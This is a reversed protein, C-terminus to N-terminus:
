IRLTLHKAGVTWANWDKLSITTPSQNLHGIRVVVDGGLTRDVVLRTETKGGRRKRWKDGVFPRGLASM